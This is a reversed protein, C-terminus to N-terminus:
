GPGETLTVDAVITRGGAAFGVSEVELGAPSTM